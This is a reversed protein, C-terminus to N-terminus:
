SSTSTTSRSRATSSSWRTSRVPRPPGRTTTPLTVELRRDATRAVSTVRSDLTVRVDHDAFAKLYAPYNSDDVITPRHGAWEIGAGAPRWSDLYSLGHRVVMDLRKRDLAFDRRGIDFTGSLRVASGFPSCAVMREYLKFPRAPAVGEGHATLSTGKAAELPVKVSLPKLLARSAFGAAVVVRDCELHRGEATAM